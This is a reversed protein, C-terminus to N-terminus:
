PLGTIRVSGLRGSKLDLMYVDCGALEGMWSKRWQLFVATNGDASVRLSTAYGNRDTLKAIAGTDPNLRYVDYDLRKNAAEFLIDGDPLYNPYAFIPDKHSVENPVHPQMTRLPPGPHTISYIEIQDGTEFGEADIVMKEGDASISPPSAMYFNEFTLQRPEEGDLNRAYFHWGHPHPQAIPSYSGYFDAHLFVITKGDPSFVPSIDAEGSPSWEHLGSGDVNAIVVRSPAGSGPFSTFAIQKGDSLFTPEEQEGAKLNTLRTAVGTEVDVKYVFSTRGQRVDMALLKADPSIAVSEIEWSPKGGYCVQLSLFFLLFGVRLASAKRM